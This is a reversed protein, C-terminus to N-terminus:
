RKKKRHSDQSTDDRIRLGKNSPYQRKREDKVAKNYPRHVSGEMNKGFTRDRTRDGKQLLGKRVSVEYM